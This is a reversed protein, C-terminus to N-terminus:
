QPPTAYASSRAARREFWMRQLVSDKRVFQHFMAALFHIAILTALATACAEHLGHQWFGEFSAPLAAGPKGLMVSPVNAAIATALGTVAMLYVLAYLGWHNINAAVVLFRSRTDIPPPRSVRLRLILRVTILLTIAVGAVLHARLLLLKEPSLNSTAALRLWGLSLDAIIAIALVWHLAVLAPHYRRTTSM